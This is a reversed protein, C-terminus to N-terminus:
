HRPSFSPCNYTNDTRKGYAHTLVILPSICPLQKLVLTRCASLSSLSIWLTDSYFGSGHQRRSSQSVRRDEGRPPQRLFHNWIRSPPEHHKSKMYGVPLRAERHCRKKLQGLNSGAALLIDNKYGVRYLYLAVTMLLVRYGPFFTLTENLILGAASNCKSVEYFAKWKFFLAM